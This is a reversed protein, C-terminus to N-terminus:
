AKNIIFNIIIATIITVIGGMVYYLLKSKSNIINKFYEEKTVLDNNGEQLVTIQNEHRIVKGNTIDLRKHVEKFGHETIETLHQIDKKVEAMQTAISKVM